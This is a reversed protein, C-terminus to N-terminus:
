GDAPPAGNQPPSRSRHRWGITAAAAIVVIVGGVLGDLVYSQWSPYATAPLPVLSVNLWTEVLASVTVNRVFPLYGSESVRVSYTGPSENVGFMGNEVQVNAGGITLTAGAPDVTGAVNGDRQHFEFDVALNAGNVSVSTPPVPVYTAPGAASYWYTGNALVFGLGFDSLSSNLYVLGEELSFQWEVDLPLGSQNFWVMYVDQTWVISVSLNRGAIDASGSWAV